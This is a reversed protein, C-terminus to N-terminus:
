SFSLYDNVIPFECHLLIQSRLERSLPQPLLAVAPGTRPVAVQFKLLYSLLPNQTFIFGFLYFVLYVFM